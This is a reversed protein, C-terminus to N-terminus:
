RKGRFWLLHILFVMFIRM